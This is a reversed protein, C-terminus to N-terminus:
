SSCVQDPSVFAAITMYVETKLPQILVYHDRRYDTEELTPKEAKWHQLVFLSGLAVLPRAVELKQQQSLPLPPPLELYYQHVGVLNKLRRAATPKLAGAIPLCKLLMRHAVYVSTAAEPDAKM